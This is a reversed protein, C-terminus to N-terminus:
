PTARELRDILAELVAEGEFVWVPLFLLSTVDSWALREPDQSYQQPCQASRDTMM